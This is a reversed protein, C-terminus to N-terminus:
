KQDWDVDFLKQPREKHKTDDTQMFRKSLAVAEENWNQIKNELHQIITQPKKM